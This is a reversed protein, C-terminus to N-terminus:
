KENIKSELIPITKIANEVSRTINNTAHSNILIGVYMRAPYLLFSGDDFSAAILYKKNPANDEPIMMYPIESAYPIVPEVFMPSTM